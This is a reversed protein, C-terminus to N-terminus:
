TCHYHECHDEADCIPCEWNKERYIYNKYMSPTEKREIKMSKVKQEEGESSTSAQSWDRIDEHWEENIPTKIWNLQEEEQKRKAERRCM